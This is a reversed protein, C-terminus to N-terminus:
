GAEAALADRRVALRQFLDDLDIDHAQRPRRQHFRAQEFSAPCAFKHLQLCTTPWRSELEDDLDIVQRTHRRIAFRNGPASDDTRHMHADFLQWSGYALQLWVTDVDCHPCPAVVSPRSDPWSMGLLRPLTVSLDPRM